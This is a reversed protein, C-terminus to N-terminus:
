RVALRPCVMSVPLWVVVLPEITDATTTAGQGTGLGNACGSPRRPPTTIGHAAVRDTRRKAPPPVSMDARGIRVVVQRLQVPPVAVSWRILSGVQPERARRDLILRRTEVVTPPSGAGLGIRQMGDIRVPPGLCGPIRCHAHTGIV